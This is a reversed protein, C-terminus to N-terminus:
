EEDAEGGAARAEVEGGSVVDDVEVWPPVRGDLVLRAVARVADALGAGDRDVAQDEPAGDLLPDEGQVLLLAPEGVRQDELAAGPEVELDQARQEVRRRRDRGPRAVL